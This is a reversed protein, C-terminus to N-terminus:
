EEGPERARNRRLFLFFAIGMVIVALALLAQLYILDMGNVDDQDSTSVKEMMLDGVDVDQDALIIVTGGGKEFGERTMTFPYEGVESLISFRGYEDTTVTEGNGLTVIVGYIPRDGNDLVTGSFTGTIVTEIMTLTGMDHVEGPEFSVERSVPDYGSYSIDMRYSGAFLTIEFYGSMDTVGYITTGVHISAGEIPLRYRTLVKGKVVGTNTTRFSWEHPMLPTGGLDVGEVSITYYTNHDLTDSPVFTLLTGEWELLGILGDIRMVSTSRDMEESFTITIRADVPVDTGEPSHSLVEPSTTDVRFEVREVRANGARDFAEVEIWHFGELLDIDVYTYVGVELWSGGDYRYRYGGVGSIPDSGNWDITVSSMNKITGNIPSLIELEPLTIDVTFVTQTSGINGAEDLARIIVTHEGESLDEFTYEITTALLNMEMGDLILQYEVIEPSTEDSASWTVQVTTTNVYSGTQPIMTSFIPPTRDVMFEIATSNENMVEDYCTIEFRHVGESPSEWIFSTNLGVDVRESLDLKVMYDIISNVEDAGSWEITVNETNHATGNIPSGIIVSPKTDDPLAQAVNSRKSGGQPNVCTLYYSYLTGVATQDDHHVLSSVPLSTLKFYPDSNNRRYLSLSEVDPYEVRDWLVSVNVQFVKTTVNIPAPPIVPIKSTTLPFHDWAAGIAIDYPLDVIGDDDDDPGTWDRWYNGYGDSTNFTNTGWNDSAQIRNSLFQDGAGNNYLFSNNYAANGTSSYIIMGDFRNDQFLVDHVTNGHSGSVVMGYARNEGIVGESVTNGESGIMAMGNSNGEVSNDIFTNYRSNECSIGSDLNDHVKNGDLDNFNSQSLYIGYQINHHIDNGEVANRDGRHFHIGIGNDYLENDIYFNQDYGSYIGAENGHIVNNKVVNDSTSYYMQLGYRANDFLSNNEFRGRNAINIAVGDRGSGNCSNGIFRLDDSQYLYVGTSGSNTVNNDIIMSNGSAQIYLGNMSGSIANSGIFLGDMNVADIGANYNTNITNGTVTVNISNALRIGELSNNFITNDRLSVSAAWEVYIGYSNNFLSNSVATVNQALFIKLGHGNNYIAPYTANYLSCNSVVIHSVTNQILISYNGGEADISYGDIMFPTEESGDGPWGEKSVNDLLSTENTIEIVSHTQYALPAPAVQEKPADGNVPLISGLIIVALLLGILGREHM